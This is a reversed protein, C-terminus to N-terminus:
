SCLVQLFARPLTGQHIFRDRHIHMLDDHSHLLRQGPPVTITIAAGRMLCVDLFDGTDGSLSVLGGPERHAPADGIQDVASCHTCDSEQCKSCRSSTEVAIM